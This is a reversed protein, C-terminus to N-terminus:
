TRPVVDPYRPQRRATERHGEHIIQLWRAVGEPNEARYSPGVERLEIPIARLAPPVIRELVAAFEPDVIAGQITALVLAYLRDQFRLASDLAGMGGYAAGILVFRGLGLAQTLADLDSSLHGSSAADPSQTSQGWGRQDFTVCRYGAGVFAPIQQEWCRSDAAAPHVFVVPVGDGGTDEYWIRAGPIEIHPM